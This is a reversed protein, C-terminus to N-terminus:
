HYVGDLLCLNAAKGTAECCPLAFSPLGIMDKGRLPAHSAWPGPVAEVKAVVARANASTSLHTPIGRRMHGIRSM